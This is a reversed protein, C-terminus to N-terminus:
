SLAAIAQDIKAIKAAYESRVARLQAVVHSAGNLAPSASTIAPEKFTPRPLRGLRRALGMEASAHGITVQVAEAVQKATWAPNESACKLIRQRASGEM